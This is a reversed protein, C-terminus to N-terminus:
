PVPNTSFSQLCARLIHLILASFPYAPLSKQGGCLVVVLVRIIFTFLICGFCDSGLDLVWFWFPFYSIGYLLYDFINKHDVSHAVIEWFTAM